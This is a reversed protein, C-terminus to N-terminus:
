SHGKAPASGCTAADSAMARCRELAAVRGSKDGDEARLEALARYASPSTLLDKTALRELTTKGEARSEPVRALAEGLQSELVPDIAEGDKTESKAISRLAHASWTLNAVKAMATRGVWQDRMYVPLQREAVAGDSRSMSVALVRMARNIIPDKTVGDYNGIHPIMRVVAGAAAEYDGKELSKEARAVGMVRYDVDPEFWGGGCAEASSPTAMGIVGALALASLLTKTIRHTPHNSRKM